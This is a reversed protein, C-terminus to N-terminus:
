LSGVLTADDDRVVEFTQTDGLERLREGAIRWEQSWSPPAWDVQIAHAAAIEDFITAPALEAPSLERTLPHAPTRVEALETYTWDPPSLPKRLLGVMGAVGAALLALLPIWYWM